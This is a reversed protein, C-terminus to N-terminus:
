ALDLGVIEHDAIQPVNLSVVGDKIEYEAKQGRLLLHVDTVKTNAPIRIAVQADVPILERFPGKMMMPNTLNVLHVTMSKEQRWTTVDVVGPCKVTVIPEEGLAWRITNRLLRGHDPSMIQWFTRDLDGPFYAIRSQGVERLYLERIDTDGTRPIYM